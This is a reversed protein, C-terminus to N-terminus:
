HRTERRLKLEQVSNHQKNENLYVILLTRGITFWVPEHSFSPSSGEPDVRSRSPL